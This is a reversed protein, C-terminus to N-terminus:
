VKEVVVSLNELTADADVVIYMVSNCDRGCNRLLTSIGLPVFDGAAAASGAAYAGQIPMGDQYLQVSIDGAATPSLVISAEVDYYGSGCLVVSSGELKVNRGFRRVISGFPVMADAALVPKSTNATCLASNCGM